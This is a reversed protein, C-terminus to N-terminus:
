FPVDDDEPIAKPTVATVPPPTITASQEFLFVTIASALHIALSAYSRPVNLVDSGQGHGGLENRLIAIAPLVANSVAKAPGPPIDNLYGAERFKIFLEKGVGTEPSLITKLTSEVSKLSSVIADKTRNATLSERADRLEDLAGSFGNRHLDTQAKQVLERMFGSDIQFFAGDLLLWPCNFALMAENVEQAFKARHEKALEESFQEIVELVNSPYGERFYPEIGELVGQATKAVLSTRGLGLKLRKETEELRTTYSNWGCEWGDNRVEVLQWLRERLRPAISVKMRKEVLAKEHRLTFPEM